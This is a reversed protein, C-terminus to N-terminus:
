EEFDQLDMEEEEVIALLFVATLTFLLSAFVVAGVQMVIWKVFIISLCIAITTLLALVFSTAFKM